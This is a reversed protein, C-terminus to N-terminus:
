AWPPWACSALPFCPSNRLHSARVETWPSPLSPYSEGVEQDLPIRRAEKVEGYLEELESLFEEYHDLEFDDLFGKLGLPNSKEGSYPM